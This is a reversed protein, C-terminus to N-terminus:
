KAAPAEPGKKCHEPLEEEAAGKAERYDCGIKDTKEDVWKMFAGATGGVTPGTDNPDKTTEMCSAVVPVTLIAGAALIRNLGKM